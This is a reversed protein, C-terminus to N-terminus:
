PSLWADANLWSVQQECLESSAKLYVGHSSPCLNQYLAQIECELLSICATGDTDLPLVDSTAQNVVYYTRSAYWVVTTSVLVRDSVAAKRLNRQNQLSCCVGSSQRMIINPKYLNNEFGKYEAVLIGESMEVKSQGSLSQLSHSMHCLTDSVLCIYIITFSLWGWWRIMLEQRRTSFQTPFFSPFYRQIFSFVLVHGVPTIPAILIIIFPFFTLVDRFTRRIAQVERNKLTTGVFLCAMFRIFFIRSYIFLQAKQLLLHIWKLSPPRLLLLRWRLKYFFPLPSLSHSSGQCPM